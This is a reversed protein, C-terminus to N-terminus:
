NQAKVLNESMEKVSEQLLFSTPRSKQQLLSCAEKICIAM